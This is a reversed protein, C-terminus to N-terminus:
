LELEESSVIWGNTDVYIWYGPNIHVNGIEIPVDKQGIGKSKDTKKPFSNLANLGININKIVEIDRIYGNTIIGRWKNEFAAQAIQDGVMSCLDPGTHSICLVKGKGDNQVLEKVVSNSHECKATHIQGYFKNVAGYSNLFLEGIQIENNEDCIDPVTFDKM